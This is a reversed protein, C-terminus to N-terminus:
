HHKLLVKGVLRRFTDGVAIPRVGWGEKGSPYPELRVLNPALGVPLRGDAAGAVLGTLALLLSSAQGPKSM